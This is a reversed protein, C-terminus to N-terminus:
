VIVNGLDEFLVRLGEISYRQFDSPYGHFPHVFPAVIFITGNKKLCRGVEDVFAKPYKVHEIVAESIVADFTNEAFPLWCGDAVIDVDLLREMDVNIVGETHRTSGSGLNLILGGKHLKDFFLNQYKQLPDYPIFDAGFIYKLVKFLRSNRFRSKFEFNRSLSLDGYSGKKILLFLVGDVVPYLKNCKSCYLGNREELLGKCLPCAIISLLKKSVQSINRHNDM